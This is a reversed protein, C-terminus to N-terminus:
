SHTKPTGFISSVEYSGPGPLAKGHKEAQVLFNGNDSKGKFSWAPTRPVTLRTNNPTKYNPVKVTGRADM